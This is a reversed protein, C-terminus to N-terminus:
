VWDPVDMRGATDDHWRFTLACPLLGIAAHAGLNHLIWLLRRDIQPLPSAPYEPADDDPWLKRSTWDHFAVVRRTPTVALLAHAVLNHLLWWAHFRLRRALRAPGRMDGCWRDVRQAYRAAATDAVADDIHM